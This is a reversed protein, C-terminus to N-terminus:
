LGDGGGTGDSTWGEASVSAGLQECGEVAELEGVRRRFDAAAAAAGPGPLKAWAPALPVGGLNCSWTKFRQPDTLWEDPRLDLPDIARWHASRRMRYWMFTAMLNFQMERRFRRRKAIAERWEEAIPSHECDCAGASMIEALSCREAGDVDAGSADDDDSRSAFAAGRGLHARLAPYLDTPYIHMDYESFDHVVRENEPIGLALPAKSRWCANGPHQQQYSMDKDSFRTFPIVPKGFHFLHDYTVRELLVSDPDLHLVFRGSCYRDASVLPFLAEADGGSTGGSGHTAEGAAAAAAATDVAVVVKLDFPASDEYSGLVQGYVVAAAKDEVVVVVELAGPFNDIVTPLTANLLWADEAEAAAYVVSVRLGEVAPMPRNNSAPAGFEVNPNKRLKTPDLQLYGTECRSGGDGDGGGCSSDVFRNLEHAVDYGLATLAMNTSCGFRPKVLPIDWVSAHKFMHHTVWQQPNLFWIGPPNQSYALGALLEPVHADETELVLSIALEQEQEPTRERDEQRSRDAGAVLFHRLRHNTWAPLIVDTGYSFSPAGFGLLETAALTRKLHFEDLRETETFPVLLDGRTSHTDKSTFTRSIVEGPGLYYILKTGEGCYVDALLSAHGGVTTGNVVVVDPYAGLTRNFVSFYVPDVAVRVRVGPMFHQISRVSSETEALFTFYGTTFACLDGHVLDKTYPMMSATVPAVIEEEEEEEQDAARRLKVGSDKEDEAVDVAAAAAEAREQELAYVELKKREEPPEHTNCMIVRGGKRKAAKDAMIAANLDDFCFRCHAGRDRWNCNYDGFTGSGCRYDCVTDTKTACKVSCNTSQPPRLTDCMIVHQRGTEEGAQRAQRELVREAELAEDIDVYCRRCDSGYREKDGAGCDKGGVRWPQIASCGEPDCVTSPGGGGGGGGSAASGCELRCGVATTAAVSSGTLALSEAAAAAAERASESVFQTGGGGSLSGHIFMTDSAVANGVTIQDVDLFGVNAILNTTVFKSSFRQWLPWSYPFDAITAWIAVDYSYTYDWRALTFEIFEVFAPDSNNYIANGNIHGLVKWHDTITATGHFNTGALNSGKVWFPEVADFAAHHLKEFSQDHAVLVDWEIIAIVSFSSVQARIKEDLFLKYFQVSPGKPYSNEEHTLNGFVASTRAFCKGGTRELEPLVDNSWGSDDEAGAYYLVLEVHRLTVPSCAEPWRALSALARRLDGGHAPVVVALRQEDVEVEQKNGPLLGEGGLLPRFLSLRIM